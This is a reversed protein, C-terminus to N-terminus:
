QDYVDHKDFTTTLDKATGIVSLLRNIKQDKTTVDDNAEKGTKENASLVIVELDRGEFEEPVQITLIGNKATATTKLAEM